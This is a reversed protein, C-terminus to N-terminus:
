KKPRKKAAASRAIADMGFAKEGSILRSAPIDDRRTQNQHLRAANRARKYDSIAEIVESLKLADEGELAQVIWKLQDDQDRAPYPPADSDGMIWDLSVGFYRAIKWGLNLSPGTANSDDYPEEAKRRYDSFTGAKTGVADALVNQKTNARDILEVIKKFPNM